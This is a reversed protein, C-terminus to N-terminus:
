SVFMASMVEKITSQHSSASSSTPPAYSKTSNNSWTIKMSSLTMIMEPECPKMDRLHRYAAQAPVLHANYLSETTQSDKFKSVYSTVYRMLMGCQDSFQVDKRCKLFHIVSSIYARLKLAFASQPYYLSLHQKGNQDKSVQTAHENCPLVTKHSQQLDYVLFALEEDDCPIHANIDTYSCKSLDELSVLLHVHATGRGQFEIRYFFNRVNRKNMQKDYNFLHQKWRLSNTGCHYGRVTQELVHVINLTELTALQTPMKGSIEAANQLWVPTPFTWEYPSITIFVDPYGYQRVADILYRHHWRWYELSFTKSSLFIAASAQFQKASSIAGSVTNFLWRDYVFQLLDYDLSYDLVESLVKFNFSVKASQRSTNGSLSTECWEYFPYLHPWLECEIGDNERYDYLNVQKGTKVHEDRLQIFHNYRSRPSTTLYRYALMCKVKSVSGLKSIKELVSEESCSVRTFGDKKRYGHQHLKYNGNHLTFPRLTLIESKNLGRLCLPIEFAQPIHYRPSICPCAKITKLKSTHFSPLRKEPQLLKCMEFLLVM